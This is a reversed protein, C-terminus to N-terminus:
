MYQLRGVTVYRSRRLLMGSSLGVTNMNVLPRWPISSLRFADLSLLKGVVVVCDVIM